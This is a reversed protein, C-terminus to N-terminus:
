PKKAAATAVRARRRANASPFDWLNLAYNNNIRAYWANAEAPHGLAAHAEAIRSMVLVDTTDAAM